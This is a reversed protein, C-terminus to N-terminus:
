PDSLYGDRPGGACLGACVRQPQRVRLVGAARRGAALRPAAPVRAHAGEGARRAARTLVFREARCRTNESLGPAQSVRRLPPLAGVPQVAASCARRARARDRSPRCWTCSSARPRAPPAGTASGSAPSSASSSAPRATSAATGAARARREPRPPRERLDCPGAAGLPALTARRAAPRLARPAGVARQTAQPALCCVNLRQQRKVGPLRTLLACSCAWEPVSQAAAGEQDEFNLQAAPFRRDAPHALVDPCCLAAVCSRAGSRKHPLPRAGRQRPRDGRQRKVRRCPGASSGGASRGRLTVSASLRCSLRLAHV